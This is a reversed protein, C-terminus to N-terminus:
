CITKNWKQYLLDHWFVSRLLTNIAYNYSEDAEVMEAGKSHIYTLYTHIHKVDTVWWFFIKIFM